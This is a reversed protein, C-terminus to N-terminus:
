PGFFVRGLAITDRVESRFPIYRRNQLAGLVRIGSKGQEGFQAAPLGRQLDDHIGLPAAPPRAALMKAGRGAPVPEPEIRIPGDSEYVGNAGSQSMGTHFVGDQAQSRGVLRLM